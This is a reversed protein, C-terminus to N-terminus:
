NWSDRAAQAAAQIDDWSDDLAKAKKAFDEVAKKGADGSNALAQLKAKLRKDRSKKLVDSVHNLVSSVIGEKTLIKNESLQKQIMKNIIERLKKESM